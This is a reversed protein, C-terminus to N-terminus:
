DGNRLEPISSSVAGPNEISDPLFLLKGGEPADCSVDRLAPTNAEALAV